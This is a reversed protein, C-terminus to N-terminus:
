VGGETCMACYDGGDVVSWGAKKAARRLDATKTGTPYVLYNKVDFSSEDLDPFTVDGTGHENDCVIFKATRLM